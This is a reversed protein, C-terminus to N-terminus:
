LPGSYTNTHIVTDRRSKQAVTGPKVQASEHQSLEHPVASGSALLMKKLYFMIEVDENTVFSVVTLL